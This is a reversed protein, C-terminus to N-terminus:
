FGIGSDLVIEGAKEAPLGLSDILIELLASSHHEETSSRASFDSWQKVTPQLDNSVLTMLAKALCPVFKEGVMLRWTGNSRHVPVPTGRELSRKISDHNTPPHIGQNLASGPPDLQELLKPNRGGIVRGQQQGKEDEPSGPPGVSYCGTHAGRNSSEEAPFRDFIAVVEGGAVRMEKCALGELFFELCRSPPEIEKVPSGIGVRHGDRVGPRILPFVM